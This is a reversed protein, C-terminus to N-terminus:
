LPYGTIASAFELWLSSGGLSLFLLIGVALQVGIIILAPRSLTTSSDDKLGTAGVYLLLSILLSGYTVVPGGPLVFRLARATAPAIFTFFSAFQFHRHWEPRRISAFAAAGFVTVESLVWFPYALGTLPALGAVKPDAAAARAIATVISLAVVLGFLAASIVGVTKHRHLLGRSAAFYQYAFVALWATTTLGHALVLLTLPKGAGFVPKLYFTPAFGVLLLLLALGVFWDQRTLRIAPTLAISQTM